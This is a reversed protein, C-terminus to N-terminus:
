EIGAEATAVIAGKILTRLRRVTFTIEDRTIFLQGDDAHALEDVVQDADRLLGILSDYDLQTRHAGDAGGVGRRQRRRLLEDAPAHLSM